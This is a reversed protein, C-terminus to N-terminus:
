RRRGYLPKKLIWRTARDGNVQIAQVDLFAGFIAKWQRETFERAGMSLPSNIKLIAVNDQDFFILAYNSIFDYNFTGTAKNLEQGSAFSVNLQYWKSMGARTEYAVMMEAQHKGHTTATFFCAIVIIFLSKLRPNM